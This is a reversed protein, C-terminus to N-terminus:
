LSFGLRGSFMWVHQAMFGHSTRTILGIALGGFLESVSAGGDINESILWRLYLM